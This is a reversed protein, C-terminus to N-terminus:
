EQAQSPSVRGELKLARLVSQFRPNGHAPRWSPHVAVFAIYSTRGALCRELCDLARSTEGVAMWQIGAGELAGGNEMTAAWAAAAAKGDHARQFQQHQAVIEQPHTIQTLWNLRAVMAEDHRGLQDFICMRLIHGLPESSPIELSQELTNLAYESEGAMWYVIGFQHLTDARRPDLRRARKMADIAELHQGMASLFLGYAILAEVSSPNLAVAHALDAEAGDWDWEYEMKIRGLVAWVEALSADLALAQEASKRAMSMGEHLRLPRAMATSTLQLYTAALGAHALAYDPDLKLAHEFLGLARMAPVPAFLKLNTRAQLQLFYAETSRPRYSVPDRPHRASPALSRAVRQVIADQVAPGHAKPQAFRESWQARGTATDILRASIQLQEDHLQVSGELVHGAGLKRGAEASDAGGVRDVAGVPSVTLGPLGGLVTTLADAMGVGLYRDSEAMNGTSFARVAIPREQSKAVVRPPVEVSSFVRVPVALRYGTGAVTEIYGSSPGTGLLKRLTSMHVALTRDEVVVNTWLKARFTEYSVLRGQAAVLMLLIQWAKGPVPVVAGDQRTLRREAADLVFPGFSYIETPGAARDIQGTHSSEMFEVRMGVGVSSIDM